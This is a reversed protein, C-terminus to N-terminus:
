DSAVPDGVAAVADELVDTDDAAGGDSNVMSLYCTWLVSTMNMFLVQLPVPVLAFNILQAPVWLQWNAVLMDSWVRRYKDAFESFRRGELTM